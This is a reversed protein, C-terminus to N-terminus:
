EDKTVNYGHHILVKKCLEVFEDETMSTKALNALHTTIGLNDLECSGGRSIPLIHDLSYDDKTLDIEDGTLYCKVKTNNNYKNLVDKYGFKSM